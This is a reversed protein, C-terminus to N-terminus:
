AEPYTFGNDKAVSGFIATLLDNIVTLPATGAFLAELAGKVAAFIENMM